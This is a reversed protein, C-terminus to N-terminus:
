LDFRRTARAFRSTEPSSARQRPSLSAHVSPLLTANRTLVDRELGFRTTETALLCTETALLSTLPARSSASTGLLGTESPLLGTESPLPGTESPLLGTESPLLGTESPLPGTESPLPGTEPPLPSAEPALLGTSAGLLGTEPPRLRQAILLLWTSGGLLGRALGLLRSQWSRPGTETALLAMSSALLAAACLQM